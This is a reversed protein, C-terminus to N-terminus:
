LALESGAWFLYNLFYGTFGKLIRQSVLKTKFKQAGKFM